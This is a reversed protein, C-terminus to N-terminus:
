EVTVSKALNRPRDVNLGKQSAFYYAFLQLPIASLIPTLSELTKPIFIVDDAMKALEKDGQSCIALVKGKRAKIEQINSIVKEYMSDEPAIAVTFVNKDVIALPGHKMEGAGYGEAHIYALEKLKLAGEMAVPLNFKRGIFLFHEFKKYRRAIKAIENKIQLIKEVKKSIKALESLIEFAQAHIMKRQRGLYVAVLVLMAIQSIFVKTSAVGIEPGAHNYIGADSERAISSGVVNVISLVLIGRRKAEKIAELTDATEGSQSIALIATKDTLIPSRYRFESAYEVEVPIGAYNEILYEGILGAYYATGCGIIVLRNIKRLAKEHVDFGGLKALGEEILIRGRLGNEIVEPEEMIEKLMFSDFKGKDADLLKADSQSPDRNVTKNKLTKISYGSKNLIAIEGDKLYIIDRTHSAIAMPDSAAFYEGDKLGIILPSGMRAIVIEDPFDTNQIALGYTGRIKKMASIVAGSFNENKKTEEEILHAIVETDTESRFKHGLKELFLKLERFNEVIGNHVLWIKGNEDSHPHTNKESPV